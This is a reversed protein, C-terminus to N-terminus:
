LPSLSHHRHLTDDSGTMELVRDDLVEQPDPSAHRSREASQVFVQRSEQLAEEYMARCNSPPDSLLFSSVHDGSDWLDAHDGLCDGDEDQNGCNRCGLLPSVLWCGLLRVIFDFNM